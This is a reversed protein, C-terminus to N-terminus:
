GRAARCQGQFAPGSRASCTAGAPLQLFVTMDMRQNMEPEGPHGAVNNLMFYRVPVLAEEGVIVVELELASVRRLEAVGQPAPLHLRGNIDGYDEQCSTADIYGACVLAETQGLGEGAFSVQGSIRLTSRQGPAAGPVRVRLVDGVWIGAQTLWTERNAEQTAFVDSIFRGRMDYILEAKTHGRERSYKVRDRPARQLHNRNGEWDETSWWHHYWVVNPGNYALDVTQASAPVALSGLASSLALVLAARVMSLTM